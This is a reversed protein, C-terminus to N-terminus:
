QGAGGPQGPMAPQLPLVQVLGCVAVPRAFRVTSGAGLAVGTPYVTASEARACRRTRRAALAISTWRGPRLTLATVQRGARAYTILESRGSRLAAADPLVKAVATAGTSLRLRVVPWGGSRLTCARRTTRLGLIVVSESAGADASGVRVQLSRPPCAAPETTRVMRFPSPSSATGLARIQGMLTTLSAFPSVSIQGGVCLGALGNGRAVVRRASGPVALRLSASRSCSAAGPSATATVVASAGPVLRVNKEALEALNNYRVDSVATRVVERGPRGITIAPWGRLSCEGPGTNRLEINWTIQGMEGPPDGKIGTPITVGLEAPTCLKSVPEAARASPGALAPPVTLSIVALVAAAVGIGLYRIAGKQAM